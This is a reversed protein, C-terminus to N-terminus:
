KKQVLLRLFRAPSESVVNYLMEPREIDLGTKQSLSNLIELLKNMKLENGKKESIVILLAKIKRKEGEDGLSLGAEEASDFELYEIEADDSFCNEVDYVDTHINEYLYDNLVDRAKEQKDGTIKSLIKEPVKVTHGNNGSVAEVEFINM